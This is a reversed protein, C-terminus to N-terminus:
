ATGGAIAAASQAAEGNAPVSGRTWFHASDNDRDQADEDRNNQNDARVAPVDDVASEGLNVALNLDGAQLVFHSHHTIDAANRMDAGLVFLIEVEGLAIHHRLIAKPLHVHKTAGGGALQRFDEAWRGNCNVAAEANQSKTGGGFAIRQVTFGCKAGVHLGKSPAYILENVSVLVLEREFESEQAVFRPVPFRSVRKQDDSVHVFRKGATPPPVQIASTNRRLEAGFADKGLRGILTTPAGVKASAVAQNAGKGGPFYLVANGAVTEGVKPHREATAVVDMNISGAVFVRGLDM